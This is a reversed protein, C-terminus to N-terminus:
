FARDGEGTLIVCRVGDDDRARGLAGLLETKLAVTLSNMAEPRNLTITAVAGEIDYLITM